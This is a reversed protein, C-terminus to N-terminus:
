ALRRPRVPSCALCRWEGLVLRLVDAHQAGLTVRLGIEHTRQGVVYSIVGYIGVSALVVALAAFIGLLIVTFRQSAVSDSVIRDLTVVGYVTQQGNMKKLMALIFGTVALPDSKTRVVYRV